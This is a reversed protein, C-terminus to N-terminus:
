AVPPDQTPCLPYYTPERSMTPQPWSDWRGVWMGVRMYQANGFIHSVCIQKNIVKAIMLELWVQYNELNFSEM